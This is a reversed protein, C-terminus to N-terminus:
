LIEWREVRLEPTVSVKVKNTSKGDTVDCMVTGDAPREVLDNTGCSVTVGPVQKRIETALGAELKSRMLMPPELEWGTVDYKDNFAIAVTVTQKGVTTKCRAKDDKLFMLPESGCDVTAPIGLADTLVKPLNDAIKKTIVAPGKAWATDMDVRKNDQNVNTITVDLEFTSKDITIQCPFKAGVKAEVDKPCSVKSATLGMATMRDTITTEFGETDVKSKCAVLALVALVVTRHM